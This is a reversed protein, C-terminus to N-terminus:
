LLLLHFISFSPPEASGPAGLIMTLSSTTTTNSPCSGGRQATNRIQRLETPAWPVSSIFNETPLMIICHLRSLVSCLHNAKATGRLKRWVCRCYFTCIWGRAIMMQGCPEQRSRLYQLHIWWCHELVAFMHSSSYSVNCTNRSTSRCCYQEARETSSLWWKEDAFREYTCTTRPERSCFPPITTNHATLTRM